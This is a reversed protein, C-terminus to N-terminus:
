EYRTIPKKIKEITDNRLVVDSIREALKLAEDKHLRAGSTLFGALVQNNRTSEFSNLVLQEADEYDMGSASVTGGLAKGTLFDLHTNRPGAWSRMAEIDEITIKREDAIRQFQREVASDVCEDVLAPPASVDELFQAIQDYNMNSNTVSAQFIRTAQDESMRNRVLGAYIARTQQPEKTMFVGKLMAEAEEDSLSKLRGTAHEPSTKYISKFLEMEFRCHLTGFNMLNLSGSKEETFRRAMWACAEAPNNEALARIGISGLIAEYTANKGSGDVKDFFRDMALKPDKKVLFPLVHIEIERIQDDSMRDRPISDLLELLESSSMAALKRDFKIKVSQCGLGSKWLSVQPFIEKWQVELSGVNPNQSLTGSARSKNGGNSKLVSLETEQLHLIKNAHATQYRLVSFFVCGSIVLILLVDRARIKMFHIM